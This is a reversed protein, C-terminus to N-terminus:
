LQIGDWRGKVNCENSINQVLHKLQKRQKDTINEIDGKTYVDLLYIKESLLIEVFLIKIGGRKCRNGLHFRMKRIGGTGQIVKGKHPDSLIEEQVAKLLDDSLKLHKWRQDFYDTLIFERTM